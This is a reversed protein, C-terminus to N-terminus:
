FRQGPPTLSIRKYEGARLKQPLAGYETGSRLMHDPLLGAADVSVGTRTRKVAKKFRRRLEKEEFGGTLLRRVHKPLGKNPDEGYPTDLLKEVVVAVDRASMQPLGKEGALVRDDFPFGDAVSERRVLQKVADSEYVDCATTIGPNVQYVTVPKGTSANAEIHFTHWALENMFKDAADALLGYSARNAALASLSAIRLDEMERNMVLDYGLAAMNFVFRTRKNAAREVEAPAEVHMPKFPMGGGQAFSQYLAMKLTSVPQRAGMEDLAGYIKKLIDPEALDGGIVIVNGGNPHRDVLAQALAPNGSHV